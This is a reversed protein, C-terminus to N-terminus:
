VDIGSTVTRERRDEVMEPSIRIKGGIRMIRPARGASLLRYFEGEPTKNAGCFQNMTM